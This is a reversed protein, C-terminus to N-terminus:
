ETGAPRAAAARNVRYLLSTGDRRILTLDRVLKSDFKPPHILWVYDFADRPFKQLAVGIPRWFQGRCKIDSVIESPDHAFGKAAPYQTTMLQAGAMSWQDNTFAM